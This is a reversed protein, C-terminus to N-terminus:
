APKRLSSNLTALSFFDPLTTSAIAAIDFFHPPLSAHEVISVARILWSAIRLPLSGLTSQLRITSWM